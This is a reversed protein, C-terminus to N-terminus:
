CDEFQGKSLPCDKIQGGCKLRAGGGLTRTAAFKDVPSHKPHECWPISIFQVNRQRDARITKSELPKTTVQYYECDNM